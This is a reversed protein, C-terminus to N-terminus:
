PLQITKIHELNRCVMEGEATILIMKNNRIKQLLGIKETNEGGDIIILQNEVKKM